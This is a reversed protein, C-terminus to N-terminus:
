QPRRCLQNSTKKRKCRGAKYTRGASVGWSSSHEWSSCAPQQDLALGADQAILLDPAEELLPCHVLHMGSTSGVTGEFRGKRPHCTNMRCEVSQHELRWWRVGECQKSADEQQHIHLQRWSAPVSHQQLQGVEAAGLHTLLGKASCIGCSGPGVHAPMASDALRGVAKDKGNRPQRCPWAVSAQSKRPVWVKEVAAASACRCARIALM